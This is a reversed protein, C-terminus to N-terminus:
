FLHEPLWYGDDDYDYYGSRERTEEDLYPEEEALYPSGGRLMGQAPLQNEVFLEYIANVQGDHALLGTYPDIRATVIGEPQPPVHEPKDKLVKEIFYMWMPLAAQAGYEGLTKPEDFGVWATAVIDRNFGSYWADLKDNTTGTKGALDQRGLSLARRATGNQVVDQLVSAMLYAVQPSLVPAKEPPPAQYMLKGQYDRIVEIFYPKVAYGGNAFVCYGAAMELPTVSATGLALSLFPPFKETNFGVKKSFELLKPVGIAQLLRVAVVNQSKTLSTRLRMPGNFKHSHNQPRWLAGSVPDVYVFPADNILSSLTFGESLATAYIFPKFSSGPQREAQTARNFNSHYYDFGGGVSTIAGTDPNLSILAASAKPIQGLRWTKDPQLYVYIVHGINAVEAPKRAGPKAWQLNKFPVDVSEGTATLVTIKQGDTETVVAPLFEAYRPITRLKTLWNPLPLPEKGPPTTWKDIHGRYGHRQDYEMLGRRLAENAAIQHESNITTYVVLGLTYADEGYQEYLQQRVMEAVYPADIEVPHQHYKASIPQNIAEDYQEQTIYEYNLMRDLVHKRRKLAAEPDNLPNIRTPAQPLGAIMAMQALTLRDVTTGYYVEAASQVGYARKGFYVKNLYLGLIEDKTLEQEIKLALLIENLKRILNKERTLFFNRAVQMTITSGGQERTGKTLLFYAARAIGRLDVGYHEYFRRDETALIAHILNPPVQNFPIPTRRNEGFEGMFKGDQTYIRLPVQLRVEKLVEVSPLNAELYAILGVGLFIATAITGLVARYLVHLFLTM